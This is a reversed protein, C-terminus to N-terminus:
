ADLLSADKGRVMARPRSQEGGPGPRPWLTQLSSFLARGKQSLRADAWACREVRASGQPGQGATSTSM